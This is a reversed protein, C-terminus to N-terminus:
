HALEKLRRYFARESKGTRKMWAAVQQERDASEAILQSLLEHEIEKQAQRSPAEAKTHKLDILQEELTTLVLDKWHAETDGERHQLYDPFAKDVLLRMDLRVNLRKCSAVLFIAIELCEEASLKPASAPWGKGAVELMLASLQDDTPNCKLYHVRSKLAELLPQAHLELNSIAIIGGTFYITQDKGQRRYKIIRTHRDDPQNGLAALLIQLAKKDAFLQSVDDLVIIRDHQEDLLEFLGMPTLHGDVYVYKVGLEDLTTKVTYTKSTGPRGFLYFGTHHGLAVGRVRDRIITLRSNLDVLPSQGAEALSSTAPSRIGSCPGEILEARGNSVFTMEVVGKREHNSPTDGTAVDPTEDYETTSNNIM